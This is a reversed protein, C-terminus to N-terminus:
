AGCAGAARLRAGTLGLVIVVSLGSDVILRGVTGEGRLHPYVDGVTFDEFYRGVM